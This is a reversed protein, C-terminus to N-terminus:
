SVLHVIDNNCSAESVVGNPFDVCVALSQQFEIRVVAEAYDVREEKRLCEM